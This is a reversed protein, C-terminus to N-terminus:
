FGCTFAGQQEVPSIIGCIIMIWTWSANRSVQHMNQSKLWMEQSKATGQSDWQFIGKRWRHDEEFIQLSNDHGGNIM